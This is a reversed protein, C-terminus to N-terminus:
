GDYDVNRGPKWSAYHLQHRDWPQASYVIVASNRNVPRTILDVGHWTIGTVPAIITMTNSQYPSVAVTSYTRADEDVAYISTGALPYDDDEPFYMVVTFVRPWSDEHPKLSYGSGTRQWFAYISRIPDPRHEGSFSQYLQRVIRPDDFADVLRQSAETGGTQRLREYEAPPVVDSVTLWPYGGRRDVPTDHIRQHIDM